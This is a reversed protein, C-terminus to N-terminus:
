EAERIINGAVFRQFVHSYTLGPRGDPMAPDGQRTLNDMTNLGLGRPSEMTLVPTWNAGDDGTDFLIVGFDRVPTLYKELERVAVTTKQKSGPERGEIRFM